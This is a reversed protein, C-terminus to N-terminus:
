RRAPPLRHRGILAFSTLEVRYTRESLTLKVIGPSVNPVRIYDQIAPLIEGDWFGDVFSKIKEQSAM